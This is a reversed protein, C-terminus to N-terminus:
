QVIITATKSDTLGGSDTVIFTISYIGIVAPTWSFKGTGPLFSAGSPLNVASYTLIDGDPDTAKVTFSVLKGVKMSYSPIANMVPPRDSSPYVTIVVPATVSVQGDNVTFHVTYSGTVTQPWSFTRTAPDFNAGAPLDAASYTLNDGDPDNASVRFSLAEGATVISDPITTLIPPRNACNVIISVTRSDTLRSVNSVIFQIKYIGTQSSDPTWSFEGTVPDLSAGAPLNNASYVLNDGNPDSANITFHISKGQDVAFDPLAEMVPPREVVLVNAVAKFATAEVTGSVTFTGAKGYSAPDITDWTVNVYSITGDSYVAQITPPLVPATDTSTKSNVSLLSVITKGAGYLPSQFESFSTKQPLANSVTQVVLEAPVTFTKVMRLDKASAAAYVVYTGPEIVWASRITDFSALSMANFTASMTQTVGAALTNTKTFGKLEKVPKQMSKGPAGIYFEVIEKGAVKSTNTIDVSATLTGDLSDFKNSSLQLNSYGFTSYNLGYGFEYSVPVGFADYYRYGVFIGEKYTVGSSTGFNDEAPSYPKSPDNNYYGQVDIPFTSSLKGSPNAAGTLVAAIPRGTALGPEWVFLIADALAKWSEIEMPAGMNMVIIFPKGVARCKASALTILNREADSLYYAGKNKPTDSGEGSSRRLTMVVSGSQKVLETMQSDTPQMEGSLQPYDLKTADIITGGNYINQLAAPIQIALSPDANVAGSGTGGLVLNSSGNGIIAINGGIIPLAPRNKIYANKLLTMSEVSVNTALELNATAYPSPETSLAKGHFVPTKIVYELVRRVCSDIDNMTIFGANYGSIISNANGSSESVDLGAKVMSSYANNGTQSPWYSANGQGGWDTMVFGKFGWDNRLVFTLLDPNEATSVGNIQNYSSMVSWPQAEKVAYEFGRLYIERLARQSVNTPLNSRGTEQNNCAFHKITMGVGQSQFGNVECASTKGSLLPDESFYEFNRGNLPFRQINMGPALALDNGFYYGEQGWATGMQEILDVNWTSARAAGNPWQTAYRTTQNGNSDKFGSPLATIRLGAPGDSLSTGIIGLRALTQTGGASGALRGSAGGLLTAKEQLTMENIVASISNEDTLIVFNPDYSYTFTAINSALLNSATAYAKITVTNGFNMTATITIPSTHLTGAFTPDSGDTTYFISAGSTGSTLTIKVGNGITSGTTINSTPVATTIVYSFISVGSNLFGTKVAIAKVTMNRNVSIASSYITSSTNPESGDTTYYITAGSTTTSLTVSQTGSYTGSAKSTAPAAVPPLNPDIGYGFSVINSNDLASAVGIAKITTSSDIHIPSVYLASASTPITGDTTYHIEADSTTCSLTVDIPLGYNGAMPSAAPDSVITQSIFNMWNINFNGTNCVFAITQQGANLNIDGSVTTWNQWGGTVPATVTCLVKGAQDELSFSGAASNAAVRFQVQYPGSRTVNVSYYLINGAATWGVDQGGGTDTTTETISDTWGTQSTYSEAEIKGPIGQPGAAYSILSLSIGMVLIFTLILFHFLIKQPKGFM